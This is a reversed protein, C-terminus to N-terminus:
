PPSIGAVRLRLAPLVHAVATRGVGREVRHDVEEVVHRLGDHFLRPRLPRRLLRFRDEARGAGEIGPRSNWCANEHPALIAKEGDFELLPNRALTEADLGVLHGAPM